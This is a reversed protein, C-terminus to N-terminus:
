NRLCKLNIKISSAVYLTTIMVSKEKSDIGNVLLKVKRLFRLNIRVWVPMTRMDSNLM